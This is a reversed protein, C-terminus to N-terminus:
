KQVHKPDMWFPEWIHGDLDEFSRSYMFDLDQADRTEKGGAALAKTVIKDVAEKSDFSLAILVETTKKADAIEKTIFSAFFKEKLLMAYNEESIIMCAANDDTFQPNFSFGLKSFFEMTKSLDKVALNVFVKTSM